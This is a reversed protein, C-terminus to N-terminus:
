LLPEPDSEQRCQRDKLGKATEFTLSCYCGLNHRQNSMIVVLRRVMSSDQRDSEERSHDTRLNSVDAAYVAFLQMCNMMMSEIYQSLIAAVSELM